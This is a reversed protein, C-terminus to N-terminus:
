KRFCYLLFAGLPTLFASILFWSSIEFQKFKIHTIKSNIIIQYVYQMDFKENFKNDESFQKIKEYYENTTYKAIHSFFLLNDNASIPELKFLGMDPIKLRPIFSIVSIVTSIFLMTQALLLLCCISFTNNTKEYFNSLGFILSSNFAIIMAHKAEAFKLWNNVNDFIDKLEDTMNIEDKNLREM